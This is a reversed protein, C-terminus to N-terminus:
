RSGRRRGNLYDDLSMRPGAPSRRVPPREAAPASARVEIRGITVHVPAPSPEGGGNLRPVRGSSSHVISAPLGPIHPGSRLLPVNTGAPLDATTPSASAAEFLEDVATPGKGARSPGRLGGDTRRALYPQAAVWPPTPPLRRESPRPQGRLATAPMTDRRTVPDIEDRQADLPAVPEHEGHPSVAASALRPENSPQRAASFAPAAPAGRYPHVAEASSELRPARAGPDGGVARERRLVSSSNGRAVPDIRGELDDPAASAIGEIAVRGQAAVPEFLARPRRELVPTRLTAREVLGALFQNV